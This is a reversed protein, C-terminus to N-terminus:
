HSVPSRGEAAPEDDRAWRRAKGTEPDIVV